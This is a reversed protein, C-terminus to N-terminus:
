KTLKFTGLLAKHDTPWGQTPLIFRDKSDNEVSKGYLISQSPGVIQIDKLKLGPNPHYYIFDIRDREDATPAWTLKAKDVLPNASPFTFGPNVIPDPYLERYCDKYGAKELLISCDWNLVVGNHDRIDKTNKQWDLHSPENFDGGILIINGKEKEKSADDILKRIQEIRYSDRNNASILISDVIPADLKKWTNGDYGRPLYCAYDLWDLHASYLAIQKEGVQIRAKLVSGRDNTLPFIIEQTNIKYKSIIGTSQSFQGYYMKKKKKLAATLRNIFDHGNYNRVESLTVLDPDLYAIQDVLINFGNDVMTVEQWINIQLVKLDTTQLNKEQGCAFLFILFPLFLYFIKHM